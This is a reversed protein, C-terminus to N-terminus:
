ISITIVSYVALSAWYNFFLLFDVFDRSMSIDSKQFCPFYNFITVVRATSGKTRKLDQFGGLTGQVEYSSCEGRLVGLLRLSLSLM